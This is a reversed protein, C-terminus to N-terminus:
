GTCDVRSYYCCINFPKKTNNLDWNSMNELKHICIDRVICSGIHDTASLSYSMDRYVTYQQQIQKQYVDAPDKYLKSFQKKKYLVEMVKQQYADRDITVVTIVKDSKTKM